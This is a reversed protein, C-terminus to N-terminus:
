QGPLTFSGGGKTGHLTQINKMNPDSRFGVGELRRGDPTTLVFSSDSSIENTTQTFRLQPTTLHRGDESVVEVEGRAEATSTRRNYTGQRSTLTSSKLGTITYFIMTVKRLEIRANDDFFYATDSQLKAKRVGDTTLFTSIGFMVQDASDALVNRAAVPPEKMKTCALAGGLVMAGLAIRIAPSM